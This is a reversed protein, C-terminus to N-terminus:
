MLLLSEEDLRRRLRKAETNDAPKPKIAQKLANKARRSESLQEIKPAVEVSPVDQAFELGVARRAQEIEKKTRRRQPPVDSWGGSFAKTGYIFSAEGGRVQYAGAEATLTSSAPDYTLTADAGTLAYAGGGAALVRGVRLAAAAGTFAYTGGATSVKHAVAFGVAAGTLTYTGADATLVPDAGAPTYTLTAAAGTLTYSGAAAAIKRGAKLGAAAGTLAYSGGAATLRYGHSLAAVAGTFAYSGAAAVMSFDRLADAGTITYAGASATLRRGARLAATAGTLAYAGGDATITYGGGGGTAGNISLAGIVWQWNSVSGSANYGWETTVTGAGAEFSSAAALVITGSPPELAGELLTQGSGATPVNTQFRGIFDIVIADAGSSVSGSVAPDVATGNGNAYVVSGNPTGSDVGAVSVAIVAIEGNSAALNATVTVTGATPSMSRWIHCRLYSEVVGSDGISSLAGGGGSSTVSTMGAPSGDSVLIGVYLADGSAVTLNGTTVGTGTGTAIVSDTITPAAM